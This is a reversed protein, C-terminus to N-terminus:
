SYVGSTSCTDRGRSVDAPQLLHWDYAGVARYPIGIMRSYEGVSRESSDLLRRVPNPSFSFSAAKSYNPSGFPKNVSYTTSM